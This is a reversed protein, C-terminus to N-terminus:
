LQLPMVIRKEIEWAHGEWGVFSFGDVNLGDGPKLRRRIWDYAVLGTSPMKEQTMGRRMMDVDLRASEVFGVSRIPWVGRLGRWSGCEAFNWWQPYRVIRRLWRKKMNYYFRNRSLYVISSVLRKEHRLLGEVADSTDGTNTIFVYRTKAADLGEVHRCANIQVICDAQANIEAYTEQAIDGNGILWYRM